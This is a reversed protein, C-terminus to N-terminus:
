QVVESGNEAVYEVSPDVTTRANGSITTQVLNETGNKPKTDQGQPASATLTDVTQELQVIRELMQDVTMGEPVIAPTNSAAIFGPEAEQPSVPSVAPQKAELTRAEMEEVPPNAMAQAAQVATKSPTKSTKSTAM